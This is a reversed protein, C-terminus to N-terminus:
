WLVGCAWLILFWIIVGSIITVYASYRKVEKKKGHWAIEPVINFITFVALIILPIINM